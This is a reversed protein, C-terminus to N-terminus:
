YTQPVLTEPTILNDLGQLTGGLCNPSLPIDKIIMMYNPNTGAVTGYNYYNICDTACGEGPKNNFSYGERIFDAGPQLGGAGLYAGVVSSHLLWAEGTGATIDIPVKKSPIFSVGNYSLTNGTKTWGDPLTNFKGPQVQESIADYTLPNVAYVFGQMGGLVSYRCKIDKFASIVDVGSTQLVAPNELVSLLGNFPKLVKTGVNPLGLILEHETFFQMSLRNMRLRADWVSEGENLFYNTLDNSGARRDKNIFEDLIPTCDQLCLLDIDAMSGCHAIEFPTWCCLGSTDEPPTTYVSQPLLINWKGTSDRMFVESMRKSANKLTTSLPTSLLWNVLADGVQIPSQLQNDSFDRGLGVDGINHLQILEQMTEASLAVKNMEGNTFGLQAM